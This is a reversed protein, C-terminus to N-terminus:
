VSVLAPGAAEARQRPLASGAAVPDAAVPDATVAGALAAARELVLHLTVYRGSPRDLTAAQLEVHGDATLFAHAQWHHFAVAAWAQEVASIVRADPVDARFSGLVVLLHDEADTSGVELDAFLGSALLEQRLGDEVVSRIRSTAPVANMQLGRRLNQFAALNMCGAHSPLVWVGDVQPYCWGWLVEM